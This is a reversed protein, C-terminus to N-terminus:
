YWKETFLCLLFLDWCFFNMLDPWISWFGLEDFGLLFLVWIRLVWCFYCSFSRNQPAVLIIRKPHIPARTRRDRRHHSWRSSPKLHHSRIPKRPKVFPNELNSQIPKRPTISHTQRIPKRLEDSHSRIPEDSDSDIEPNAIERRERERRTQAREKEQERERKRM